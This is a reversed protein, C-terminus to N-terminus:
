HLVFTKEVVDTPVGQIFPPILDASAFTGKKKVYVVIAWQDTKRGGVTKYGVDVATVGPRSLLGDEVTRKVALVAERNM